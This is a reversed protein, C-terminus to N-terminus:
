SREGGKRGDGDSRGLVPGCRLREECGRRGHREDRGDGRRRTAQTAQGGSGKEMEDASASLEAASSAIQDTAQRLQRLVGSFSDGVENFSRVVTAMEDRSGNNLRFTLDGEAMRLSAQRLNDM